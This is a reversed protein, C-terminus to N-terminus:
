AAVAGAVIVDQVYETYPSTLTVGNNITFGFRLQTAAGEDISDRQAWLSSFDFAGYGYLSGVDCNYLFEDFHRLMQGDAFTEPTTNGAYRWYLSSFNTANMQLPSQTTAGNNITRFALKMLQRGVGQGALTIENVGTSINNPARSETVSHFASLNPIVISGGVSPITYVTGEVQVSANVAVTANGTLTFLNAQTNWDVAIELDTSQTQAFIAGLLTIDDFAIPVEYVLDYNYTGGSIATVGSGLGWSESAEALTGQTYSTGPAAGGYPNSVGRDDRPFSNATALLKLATGSCSILNSQGNATFRLQRVINYPFGYNTAVTGTGPTVVVSGYVRLRMHSVIGTQLVPILDTSGLGAFTSITKMLLNQRRTNAFFAQPNVASAPVQIGQMTLVQQSSAPAVAPAM